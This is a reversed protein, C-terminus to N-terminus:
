ASVEQTRAAPSPGLQREIRDLLRRELSAVGAFGPQSVIADALSRDMLHGFRQEAVGPAFRGSAASNERAERVIPEVFTAAVLRRAALGALEEPSDVDSADGDLRRVMERLFAAQDSDGGAVSAAESRVPATPFRPGTWQSAVPEHMMTPIATM